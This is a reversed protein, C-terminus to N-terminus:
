EEDDPEGYASEIQANCHECTEPPGEWHVDCAVLRWQPDEHKSGAESGNKGNACDPCLVANDATYYVIPYGGPWAFAPYECGGNATEECHLKM